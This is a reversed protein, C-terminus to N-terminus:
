QHVRSMNSQASIGNQENEYTSFFHSIFYIFSWIIWRTSMKYSSPTKNHFGFAIMHCQPNKHKQWLTQAMMRSEVPSSCDARNTKERKRAWEVVSLLKKEMKTQKCTAYCHVFDFSFFACCRPVCKTCWCSTACIWIM